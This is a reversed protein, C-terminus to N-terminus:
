IKAAEATPATNKTMINARRNVQTIQKTCLRRLLLLDKESASTLSGGLRDLRRVVGELLSLSMLIMGDGPGLLLGVTLKEPSTSTDRYLQSCAGAFLRYSVTNRRSLWGSVDPPFSTSVREVALLEGGIARGM